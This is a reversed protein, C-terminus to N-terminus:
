KEISATVSHGQCSLLFFKQHKKQILSIIFNLHFAEKGEVQEQRELVAGEYEEMYANINNIKIEAALYYKLAYINNYDGPRIWKKKGEGCWGVNLTMTVVYGGAKVKAPVNLMFPIEMDSISPDRIAVSAVSPNECIPENCDTDPKLEVVLCSGSKLPLTLTDAIAVKGSITSELCIVFFKM